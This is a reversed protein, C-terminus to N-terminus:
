GWHLGGEVVVHCGGCAQGTTGGGAATGTKSARTPAPRGMNELSAVGWSGAKREVAVDGGKRKGVGPTTARWAGLCWLDMKASGMLSTPSGVPSWGAGRARPLSELESNGYVLSGMGKGGRAERLSAPWVGGKGKAVHRGDDTAGVTAPMPRPRPQMEMGAHAQGPREGREEEEGARGVGAAGPLGEAALVGGGVGDAGEESRATRSDVEELGAVRALAEVGDGAERSPKRGNARAMSPIGSTDAM